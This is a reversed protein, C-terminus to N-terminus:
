NDGKQSPKMTELVADLRNYKRRYRDAIMDLWPEIQGLTDPALRCLRHTGQRYRTVLGATELVKIHRSIAPQSMDFPAALDMVGEDGDTLKLLIARRTSDALAAFIRDLNPAPSDNM